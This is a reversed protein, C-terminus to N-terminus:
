SCSGSGSCRWCLESRGSSSHTCALHASQIQARFRLCLSLTVAAARTHPKVPGRELQRTLACVLLMILAFSTALTHEPSACNISYDARLYSQGDDVDECIFTSFIMSSTSPYLLFILFLALAIAGSGM